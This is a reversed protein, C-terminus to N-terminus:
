ERERARPLTHVRIQYLKAALLIRHKLEKRKEVKPSTGRKIEIKLQNFLFPSFSLLLFSLKFELLPIYNKVRKIHNITQLRNFFYRKNCSYQTLEYLLNILLYCTPTLLVLELLLNYTWIKLFWFFYLIAHYLM